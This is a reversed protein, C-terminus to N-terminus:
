GQGALRLAEALIRGLGPDDTVDLPALEPDRPRVLGDPGVVAGSALHVRHGGVLLFSEAITAVELLGVRGLFLELGRRRYWVALGNLHV